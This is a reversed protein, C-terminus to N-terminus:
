PAAAAPADFLRSPPLREIILFEVERRAPVLVLGLKEEVIRAFSQPDKHDWKLEYDYLDNLNTEDVVIKKLLSELHTAIGVVPQNFAQWHDRGGNSAGAGAGSAILGGGPGNPATLILVDTERTETRATIGFAARLIARVLAEGEDDWAIPFKLKFQYLGDEWDEPFVIRPWTHFGYGRMVLGILHTKEDVHGPGASTFRWGDDEELRTISIEFLPKPGPPAEAVQPRPQETPLGTESGAILREIIEPTLSNPHTIGAIRGHQDILVTHPIGRVGFAKHMAKSTDIGIWTRMERKELFPRIIEESEDTISIFTVPRNKFHDALENIHPIAAICPGCWTAWFELIVVHGRNQFFTWSLEDAAPTGAPAQLLHTLSLPPTQHPSPASIMVAWGDGEVTEQAQASLVPTLALALITLATRM